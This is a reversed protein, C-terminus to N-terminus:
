PCDALFFAQMAHLPLIDDLCFYWSPTKAPLLTALSFHATLLSFYYTIQTERLPAFVGDTIRHHRNQLWKSFKIIRTLHITM